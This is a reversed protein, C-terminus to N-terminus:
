EVVYIIEQNDYKLHGSKYEILNFEEEGELIKQTEKTNINYTYMGKGAISYAFVIDNLWIYSNVKIDFDFSYHEGDLSIIRLQKYTNDTSTNMIYFKNSGLGPEAIGTKDQEDMAQYIARKLSLENTEYKLEYNWILDEDIVYIYPIEEGSKLERILGGTYNQCLIIGNSETVNVEFKIGRLTYQLIIYGDSYEFKDYDSWMDTMSSAFAMANGDVSLQVLMKKISEENTANQRRYISVEHHTTNFFVYFKEGRYGLTNPRPTKFDPEGLVQKIKEEDSNVNLGNIINETYKETFVLHFVGKGATKIKIGEDFYVKYNNYNAEQTGFNVQKELWENEILKKLITSQPEMSIVQFNEYNELIKNTDTKGFYNDEGNILLNTIEKKTNDAQVAILVDNEQDILRINQYDLYGLMLAIMKYYYEENSVEDTYLAYKFKLYIDTDYADSSSKEDKIYTCGMYESIEKISRFDTVSTYVKNELNERERAQVVLNRVTIITALLILTIILIKKINRKKPM